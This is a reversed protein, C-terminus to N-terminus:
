TADMGTSRHSIKNVVSSILKEGNRVEVDLYYLRNRLLDPLFLEQIKVADKHTTIFADIDRQQILRQVDHDRYVHHDLWEVFRVDKAGNAEAATTVMRRFPRHHGIGAFACLRLGRLINPDHVSGDSLLIFRTAQWVLPLADAASAAADTCKSVVRVDCQKWTKKRDRLRGLPLLWQPYQLEDADLVGVTVDPQITPDQLGDDLVIVDPRYTEAIYRLAPGRGDASIVPIPLRSRQMREALMRGEDGAEASTSRIASGDFVDVRGPRTKKYGHNLICVRHGATHLAAAIFEVVPTKGSGGVAVSGVVLIFPPGTKPKKKSFSRIGDRVLLIVAFLMSLPWLVAYGLWRATRNRWEVVPKVIM